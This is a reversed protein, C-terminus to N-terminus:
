GHTPCVAFPDVCTCEEPNAPEFPIDPMDSMHDWYRKYARACSDPDTAWAHVQRISTGDTRTLCDMWVKPDWNIYRVCDVIGPAMQHTYVTISCNDLPVVSTYSTEAITGEVHNRNASLNGCHTRQHPHTRCGM